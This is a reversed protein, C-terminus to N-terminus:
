MSNLLFVLAILLSSYVYRSAKSKLTLYELIEPEFADNNTVDQIM